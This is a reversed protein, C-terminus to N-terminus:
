VRVWSARGLFNRRFGAPAPDYSESFRQLVTQMGVLLKKASNVVALADLVVLGAMIEILPLKEDVLKRSRAAGGCSRGNAKTIGIKVLDRLVFRRVAM